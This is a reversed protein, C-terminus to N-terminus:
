CYNDIKEYQQGKKFRIKEIYYKLYSSLLYTVGTLKAIQILKNEDKEFPVDLLVDCTNKIFGIHLLSNKREKREVATWTYIISRCNFINLYIQGLTNYLLNEQGAWRGMRNEISFLDFLNIKEGSRKIEKIWLQLQVKAGKSYNHLKCRFYSPTAFLLPIDRHLSCKGVQGIIDGNLIAGDGFHKNITYAIRLTRLSYGDTGLLRDIENKLAKPVKADEILQHKINVKKCLEVPIILDQTSENHEPHKITYCRFPAKSKMLFALVVRSDRGSTIPCYIKYKRQYFHLLNDVMPLVITTAEEVSIAKPNDKSNVFRVASQRDIDLYHNPLLQKIQKYPTIDYPMAQSIDGSKRILSFESDVSYNCLNVIYNYNCACVFTDETNYFIPISCTADGQLYYHENNKYLLIYKGGLHKEYAIVDQVTTCKEVIEEAIHDSEGSIVNVALGYVACEVIGNSAYLFPTNGDIAITYKGFERNIPLEPVFVKEETILYSFICKIAM